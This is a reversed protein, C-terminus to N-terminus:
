VQREFNHKAAGLKRLMDTVVDEPNTETDDPSDFRLQTLTPLSALQLLQLMRASQAQAALRPVRLELLRSRFQGGALM